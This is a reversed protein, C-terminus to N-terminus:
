AMRDTSHAHAEAEAMMRSLGIVTLVLIATMVASLLGAREALIRVLHYCVDDVPAGATSSGVGPTACGGAGSFAAAATVVAGVTVAVVTV